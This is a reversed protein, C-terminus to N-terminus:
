AEIQISEQPLFAKISTRGPRSMVEFGGGLMEIRERMNILGLGGSHSGQMAQVNFGIGDDIVQLELGIGQQMRIQINSAQAHAEINGLAQQVFRYLAKSAERQIPKGTTVDVSVPIGTREQFERALQRLAVGLGQDDLITPYLDHSIRRVDIMADRIQTVGAKIASSAGELKGRDLQIDASEFIFKVSALSQSVGDHLERAVRTREAEQSQVVKQAMARLKANANRQESLNVALGGAAVLLLSVLATLLIKDRTDAFQRQTEERIKDEAERLQDLYLGTGIIWGCEPILDAYGVKPEDRGTSPRSWYYDVFGGGKSAQQILEQILLKGTQDKLNWLNKGELQPKRAHMVSTGDTKYVFFYNDDAEKDGFEM